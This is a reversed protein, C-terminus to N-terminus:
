TYGNAKELNLRINAKATEISNPNIDFGVFRRKTNMCAIATAGGGLFPDLVLDNVATLYKLCYEADSSSQGFNHFRKDPTKSVILDGIINRKGTKSNEPFSPNIPRKRKVFWLLPKIQVKIQRDFYRPYPGELQIYLQWWFTINHVDLVCDLIDPLAYQGIYTILSGGPRLLIEAITALDRYLAFSKKDYPPDTFILDISNAKLEKLAVNRFDGELIRIRDKPILKVFNNEALKNDTIQKQKWLEDRVEKYATNVSIKGGEIKAILHVFKSPNKQVAQVVYKEKILEGHSLYQYLILFFIAYEHWM